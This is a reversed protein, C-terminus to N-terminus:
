HSEIRKIDEDTPKEIRSEEQKEKKKERWKWLVAAIGGIFPILMGTGIWQWNKQTFTKITETLNWDVDIDKEYLPYAFHEEDPSNLHLRLIIRLSLAQQGSKIPTVDTAWETFEEQSVVQDEPSYEKTEFAGWGFINVKMLPGVRLVHIDSKTSTGLKAAIDEM